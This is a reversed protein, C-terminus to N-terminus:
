FQTLMSPVLGITRQILSPCYQCFESKEERFKKYKGSNWIDTLTQEFINGVIQKYENEIACCPLINGNSLIMALKNPQNCLSKVYNLNGWYKGRTYNEINNHQVNFMSRLVHIANKTIKEDKVKDKVVSIIDPIINNKFDNIEEKTLLLDSPKDHYNYVHMLFVSSANVELALKFLMPLDKYTERAVLTQINTYFNRYNINKRRLEDFFKLSNVSRGLLGSVGRLKDHIEFKPSDISVNFGSLGARLLNKAMNRDLNYAVTIIFIFWNYKNAEKVVRLLDDYLLPDGGSIQLTKAGLDNAAAFIEKLKNFDLHRKRKKQEKYFNQRVSCFSCKCFCELTPKIVLKQLKRMSMFLSPRMLIAPNVCGEFLEKRSRWFACPCEKLM